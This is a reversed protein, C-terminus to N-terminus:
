KATWRGDAGLSGEINGTPVYKYWRSFYVDLSLLIGLTFLFIGVEWTPSRHLNLTTAAIAALLTLGLNGANAFHQTMIPSQMAEEWFPHDDPWGGDNRLKPELYMRCYYGIRKISFGYSVILYDFFVSAFAPVLLLEYMPKDTGFVFGFSATVFAIKIGIMQTRIKQAERIELRLESIMNWALESSNDNSM